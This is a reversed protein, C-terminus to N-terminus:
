FVVRNDMGIISSISIVSKVNHCYPKISEANYDDFDGCEGFENKSFFSM